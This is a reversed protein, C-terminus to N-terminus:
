PGKAPLYWNSRMLLALREQPTLVRPDYALRIGVDAFGRATRRLHWNIAEPAAPSVTGLPALASGGIVYMKRLAAPTILATIAASNLTQPKKIWGKLAQRYAPTGDFVYVAVNGALHAFSNKVAGSNVPEFWLVPNSNHSYQHLFPALAPVAYNYIDWYRPTPLRADRSSNVRKLYAVYAALTRGALHATALNKRGNFQFVYQWEGVTPLRCGLLAAVYVAAGPPLYQVPDNVNPPGGAKKSLHGGAKALLDAPYRPANYIQNTNTFWHPALAAQGVTQHYVWTHPGFYNSNPKILNYFSNSPKRILNDSSNVANLFVGVSLDTTCLYFRKLGNPNMLRFTLTQNGTPSTFIRVHGPAKAEKWGALAPGSRRQSQAPNAKVVGQLGHIFEAVEANSRLSQMGPETLAEALLHEMGASLNQAVQPTKVGKSQVYFQHFLINFAGRAHLAKLPLLDDLQPSRSLKVRYDRSVAIMASVTAPAIAQNMRQQWRLPYQEGLKELLARKRSAALASDARLLGDLEGPIRRETILPFDAASVPISALRHWIARVFLAKHAGASLALSYDAPLVVASASDIAALQQLLALKSKLASQIAANNWWPNKQVAQYLATITVGSALRDMPLHCQNLADDIANFDTLFHQFNKRQRMWDAADKRSVVPTLESWSLAAFAKQIMATRAPIFASSIALKNWPRGFHSSAQSVTVPFDRALLVQLNTRVTQINKSIDPVQWRRKRLVSTLLHYSAQNARLASGPPTAPAFILAAIKRRYAANVAPNRSIQLVRPNIRYHQGAPEFGLLEAVWKKINIQSDIFATVARNLTTLKQEATMVTHEIHIRNKWIWLDHNGMGAFLNVIKELQSQYDVVPPKPLKLAHLIRRHVKGAELTFQVHSLLYANKPGALKRYGALDPFYKEPPLAQRRPPLHAVLDWRIQTGYMALAKSERRAAALLAAARNHLSSADTSSVLYRGAYAPFTAILPKSTKSFETLLAQLQPWIHGVGQAGAVQQLWQAPTLGATGPAFRRLTAHKAWSAKYLKLFPVLSKDEPIAALVHQDLSRAAFDWGRKQWQSKQQRLKPYLTAFIHETRMLLEIAHGLKQSERPHKALDKQIQQNSLLGTFEHLIDDPNLVIGHALAANIPAFDPVKALVQRDATFAKFWRTYAAAYPAYAGNFRSMEAITRVHRVYGLAAVIVLLAAASLGIYVPRRSKRPKLRATRELAAAINRQQEPLDKNILFGCFDSWAKGQSGLSKFEAMGPDLPTTPTWRRGAVLECVIRGLQALDDSAAMPANFVSSAPNTLVVRAMALAGGSAQIHEARLNGHTRSALKQTELLASLVSTVLHYLDEATPTVRLRILRSVPWDLRELVCYASHNDGTQLEYVRAWCTSQGAMLKQFDYRAIFSSQAARRRAANWIDEPQNFALVVRAPSEADVPAYLIELAQRGIIHDTQYQGFIPM